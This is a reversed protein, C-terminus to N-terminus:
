KNKIILLQLYFLRSYLLQYAINHCEAQNLSQYIRRSKDQIEFNQSILGGCRM